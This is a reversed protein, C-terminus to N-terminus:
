GQWYKEIHINGNDNKKTEKFGEQKLIEIMSESMQPNGCIFVHTDNQRPRIGWAKEILGSQWVDQVRGTPGRWTIPEQDPRSVVPFYAFRDRFHEMFMFLSRYGLDWSHRVGHLLAVRRDPPFKQPIRLMSAFPALGSGTAIFVINADNPVKADDFLFKGSAQPSLWIRDGIKLDFLRPSLAGGPVLAIYFEFFERNLPPSALCYTRRILKDAPIPTTEQEALDCRSSSGFLGLNVHQGAEYDFMPWGDPVVQLLMLWPSIENRLTVVANLETENM